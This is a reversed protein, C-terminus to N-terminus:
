PKPAPARQGWRPETGARLRAINGRHTWVVLVSLLASVGLFPLMHVVEVAPEKRLTVGLHALHFWAAVSLPVSACALIAALSVYRWLRLCALFVGLALLGPVTLAPFVALLAGASTAVGKGGKFKLWPTFVHGAVAAVVVGLWKFSTAPDIAMRGLAGLLWGAALVPLFGKLLDLLFVLYFYPKGLVRGVNTAGINGSGHARIDVGRARAVLLGFPISGALFAAFLLAPFM